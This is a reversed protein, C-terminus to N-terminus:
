AKWHCRYGNQMQFLFLFFQLKLFVHLFVANKILTKNFSIVSPYLTYIVYIIILNIVFIKKLGQHGSKWLIAWMVKIRGFICATIYM